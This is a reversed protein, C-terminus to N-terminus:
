GRRSHSSQRGAIALVIGIAILAGLIDIGVEV